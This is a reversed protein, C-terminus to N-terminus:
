ADFKEDTHCQKDRALDILSRWFMEHGKPFEGNAFPVRFLTSTFGSSILVSMAFWTYPSIYIEGDKTVFCIIQNKITYQGAHSKLASVNIVTEKDNKRPWTAVIEKCSLRISNKKLYELKEM